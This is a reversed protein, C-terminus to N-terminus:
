AAARMQALQHAIKDTVLHAEHVCDAVSAGRYGAGVFFLGPLSAEAAEIRAVRGAHGATYQPLAHLHRFAHRFTARSHPQILSALRSAVWAALKVDDLAALEPHRAGGVWTALLTRDAPARAPFASSAFVAGLLGPPESPATLFGYRDLADSREPYSSWAVTIPAYSIGALADAAGPDLSRLLPAAQHAPCALLVVSTELEVARGHDEFTVRWGHDTRRLGRVLTSLGLQDRLQEGLAGTLVELGGVFTQLRKRPAGIAARIAGVLVSGHTREFGVLSPLAAGVSLQDADGGFMGAMLPAFIREAAEAGFHRRAFAAVSEDTRSGRPVFLDGLLRLKARGSLLPTRWLMPPSTPVDCLRGHLAVARRRAAPLPEILQDAIGLREALREVVADRDLFAQPGSEMLFGARRLSRIKGGVRPAAELVLPEVGLRLLEAAAALGSVGAGVVICRATTTAGM